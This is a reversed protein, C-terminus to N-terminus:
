KNARSKLWKGENWYETDGEIQITTEEDRESASVAPKIYKFMKYTIRTTFGRMAFYDVETVRDLNKSM